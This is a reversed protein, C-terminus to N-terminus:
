PKVVPQLVLIGLLDPPFQPSVKLQRVRLSVAKRIRKHREELDRAREKLRARIMKQLVSADGWQGDAEHWPGIEELVAEALERKEGPPVNANPKAWALLRLAEGDNLWPDEVVSPARYGMVLVEEALLPAQQPIEMLYRVRLLLLSTLINVARTRM